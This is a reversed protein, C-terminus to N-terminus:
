HATESPAGHCRKFKKGSGCPCLDNRGPVAIKHIPQRPDRIAEGGPARRALWHAHINRAAPAILDVFAQHRAIADEHADVLEKLRDWGSKTGYLHIVEFWDPRAEILPQWGLPDLAIGKVYGCCWEDVISVIRGKVKRELFLPEYYQPAQTLTFAIVNAHRILLSLIRQAQKESAFEPAQAGEEKDWVWRMWESPMIVNPGSLAACLFGDFTSVDMANELGDDALLFVDLEEIEWNTLPGSKIPRMPWDWKMVVVQGGIV